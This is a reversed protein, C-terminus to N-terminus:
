GGLRNRRLRLCMGPKLGFNGCTIALGTDLGWCSARPAWSRGKMLIKDRPPDDKGHERLKVLMARLDAIGRISVVLAIATFSTVALIFFATWFYFWYIV